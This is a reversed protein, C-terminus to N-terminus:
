TTLGLVDRVMKIFAEQYFPKLLVGDFRGREEATAEGLTGSMLITKIEPYKAIAAERMEIGNGGPMLLDTVLLDPAIIELAAIGATPNDATFVEFGGTRQFFKAVLERIMSSDDVVLVTYV